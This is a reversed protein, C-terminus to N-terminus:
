RKRYNRPLVEEAVQALIFCLHGTNGLMGGIGNYEKLNEEMTRNTQRCTRKSKATNRFNLVMKKSFTKKEKM